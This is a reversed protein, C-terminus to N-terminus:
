RAVVLGVSVAPAWGTGTDGLRIGGRHVRVRAEGRLAVHGFFGPRGERLWYKVGAGAHAAVGDDVLARDTTLERFWGLGARVYPEAAGGRGFHRVVAAEASFRHLGLSLVTDGADEV